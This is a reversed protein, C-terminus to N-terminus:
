SLYFIGNNSGTTEMSYCAYREAFLFILKYAIYSVVNDSACDHDILM